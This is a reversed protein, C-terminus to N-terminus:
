YQAYLSGIGGTHLFCVNGKADGRRVETELAVMVKSNYVNEILVGEMRAMRLVEDASEPTNKGWGDGRFEVTIRCADEVEPCPAGLIAASDHMIKDLYSHTLEYDDEISVVVIDFPSGALYNGLVLGSSVGGNGAPVYITMNDLGMQRCQEVMEPVANVYGLAGRGTSAGNEVVYPHLGEDLCKQYIRHMEATREETSVLGMQHLEAGLLHNLLLNGTMSQAMPGNVVLICRLGLKACAAATLSCLNSQVPGAGIVTDCGRAVADALLFELSRIKNGGSGLGNLDDRKIFIGKHKLDAELRSLRHLPTPFQGLSLRSIPALYDTVYM